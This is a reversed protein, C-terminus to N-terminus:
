LLEDKILVNHVSKNHVQPEDPYWTAVMNINDFDQIDFIYVYGGSEEDGTVAYKSDDTIWVAHCGYNSYNHVLMTTPNTKDSVDIIALSGNYIDCAYATDNKVYIDHIYTEEWRGLETPNEPDSLELIIIGQWSNTQASSGASGVM